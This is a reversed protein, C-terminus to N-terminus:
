GLLSARYFTLGCFVHCFFLFWGSLLLGKRLSAYEESRETVALRLLAVLWVLLMGSMLPWMFNGHNIRNGDERLVASEPFVIGYGILALRGAMNKVFFRIDLLLIYIPFAMGLLISLFVNDSFLKWVELWETIILGGESGYSGEFSFFVLYQTLMYLLSPLACLLVYYKRTAHEVHFFIPRYMRDNEYSLLDVVLFFALFAFGRVCM